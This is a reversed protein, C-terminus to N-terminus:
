EKFRGDSKKSSADTYKDEFWGIIVDDNPHKDFHPIYPKIDLLPTGDVMDVNSIYITNGEIKELKVVSLGIPNPRKPARTAFIGRKETDLFPKVELLHGKSLHLHYILIIHSFGELDKLGGNYEPNINIEGKIGRAGIPQIPMGELDKFPSHITGISKFKITNM